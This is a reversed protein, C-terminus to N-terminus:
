VLLTKSGPIYFNELNFATQGSSATQEEIVYTGEGSAQDLIIGIVHDEAYVLHTFTFSTPSIETYDQGKRQLIGNWWVVLNGGGVKAIYNGAWFKIQWPSVLSVTMGVFIDDGLGEKGSATAIQPYRIGTATAEEDRVANLLDQM